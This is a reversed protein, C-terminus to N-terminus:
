KGAKVFDAIKEGIMMTTVNINARVCDPMISADVVRLGDLGHVKGYQDVVAMPDSSPGMRNTCSIHHGTTTERLLWADLDDDSDLVEDPPEIRSDIIDKWAEHKGLEVCMRIGDRMRERDFAEQFYNYDLMPQDHPNASNLKLEGMGLQLELGLIMRIGIPNMRNGGRNVRETAFTNMYVIMDNPLHSGTATYRLGFQIRPGMNDLHYEPKTKWTIYVLPHDRLNQGVGPVDRVVPIGIEKLHGAPGVGSLMLIQPSGIAGASLIIEDAEVTFREGASEVDVGVAQNGEFVIRHVVCNPRITLNLRHRSLGLYGIATSWRIGDPNNLPLPGVGTTDPANHDPCDAFGRELCAQYFAKSAGLWQDQRFRHCIIPGDTGHFDDSYTTDTELKRFYPLTKEFAWEDNGWSAWTDYDEPIGRLFIQGNIASSGGTVKGRPVPMPEALDTARATFQWNHDSTMIDTATAYGYKVEDPLSDIDPYDPGAELLLVSVNPDETLRTALISGASGSGIVIFDYKV